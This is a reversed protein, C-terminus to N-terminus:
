CSRLLMRCVRYRVYRGAYSREKGHSYAGATGGSGSRFTRRGIKRAMVALEHWTLSMRTDSVATKYKYKEEAQELCDLISDYEKQTDNKNLTM